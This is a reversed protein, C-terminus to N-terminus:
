GPPWAFHRGALLHLHLHYVTQGAKSGNNIVIRCSADDGLKDRAIKGAAELLRGLIAVDAEHAADVLTAHHAKPVVLIHTPAIPRIDTFAVVADDEYLLPTGTKGSAVSCFICDDPM